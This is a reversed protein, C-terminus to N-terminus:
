FIEPSQRAEFGHLAREYEYETGSAYGTGDPRSFQDLPLPTGVRAWLIFLALDAQQIDLIQAQFTDTSRLLSREWLYTELQVQGRFELQLREAVALAVAREAGVDGPSSVFIRLRLLQLYELAGPEIKDRRSPALLAAKLVPFQPIQRNGIVWITL